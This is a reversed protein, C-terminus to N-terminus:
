KNPYKRKQINRVFIHIEPINKKTRQQMPFISLCYRVM